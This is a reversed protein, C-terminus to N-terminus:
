APGGMEYSPETDCAGDAYHYHGNVTGNATESDARQGCETLYTGAAEAAEAKVAVGKWYDAAYADHSLCKTMNAYAQKSTTM